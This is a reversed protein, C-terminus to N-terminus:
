LLWRPHKNKKKEVLYDMKWRWSNHAPFSAAPTLFLALNILFVLGHAKYKRMRSPHFRFLMCM